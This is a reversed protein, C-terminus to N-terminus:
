EPNRIKLLGTNVRVRFNDMSVAIFSDLVEADIIEDELDILDM